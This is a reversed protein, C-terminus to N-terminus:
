KGHKEGGGTAFIIAKAKFIIFSGSERWMCVIGCIEGKENKLLDLATCEMYTESDRSPHWSGTLTRIMELGTRDGVHALDPTDTAEM